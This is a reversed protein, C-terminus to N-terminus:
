PARPPLARRELDRVRRGRAATAVEACDEGLQAALPSDLGVHHPVKWSESAAVEGFVKGHDRAREGDKWRSGETGLLAAELEAAGDVRGRFLLTETSEAPLPAAEERRSTAPRNNIFTWVLDPVRYMFAAQRIKTFSAGYAEFLSFRREM